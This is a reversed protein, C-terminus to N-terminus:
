AANSTGVGFRFAEVATMIHGSTIHHCFSTILYNGTLQTDEEPSGTSLPTELRMLDGPDLSSNGYVDFSIEVDAIQRLFMERRGFNNVSSTVNSNDAAILVRRTGSGIIDKLRASHQAKFSDDLPAKVNTALDDYKTQTEVVEKRLLNFAQITNQMGGYNIQEITSAKNVVQLNNVNRKYESRISGAEPELATEVRFSSVGYLEPPKDKKKQEILAEVSIFNFGKSDEFFLYPSHFRTSVARRKLFAITQWANWGPLVFTEVGETEEINLKAQDDVRVVDKLINKVVNSIQDKVGLDVNTSTARVQEISVADIRITTSSGNPDFEIDSVKHVFFIKELPENGPTQIELEIVEEGVLPLKQLMGSTDNLYFVAVMTPDFVTGYVELKTIMRILPVSKEQPISILTAVKIDVHTFGEFNRDTM